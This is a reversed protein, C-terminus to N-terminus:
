QPVRIKKELKENTLEKSDCICVIESKELDFGSQIFVHNTRACYSKCIDDTSVELRAKKLAVVTSVVLVFIFFYRIFRLVIM